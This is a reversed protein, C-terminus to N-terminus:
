VITGSMVVVVAAGMAVVGTYLGVVLMTEVAGVSGGSAAAVISLSLGDFNPAALPTSFVLSDMVVVSMGLEPSLPPPTAAMTM